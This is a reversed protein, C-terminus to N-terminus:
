RAPRAKGTGLRHRLRYAFQEDTGVWHQFPTVTPTAQSVTHGHGRGLPQGDTVEHLVTLEAAASGRGFLTRHSETKFIGDPAAATAATSPTPRQAINLLHVGAARGKRLIDTVANRARIHEDTLEEHPQPEFLVFYEDIVVILSPEGTQGNSDAGALRQQMESQTDSLLAAASAIGDAVGVAYPTAFTMEANRFRNVIAVDAGRTLASYVVSATAATKGSGAAGSFLAHADIDPRWQAVGDTTEGYAFGDANDILNWNIPAHPM